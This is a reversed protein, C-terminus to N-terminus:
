RGQQDTRVAKVEVCSTTCHALGRCEERTAIIWADPVPVKEDDLLVDGWKRIPSVYLVVAIVATGICWRLKGLQKLQM